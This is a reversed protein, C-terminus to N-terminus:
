LNEIQYEGRSRDFGHLRSIGSVRRLGDRQEIYVMLNVTEAISTRVAEHPVGMNAMLLLNELRPLARPASNAHITAGSGPHGTNAADLWDHAEPGRLEGIVIRDPAYRMATRVAKRANVGGDEDCEVLVHNPSEVQLEHVSEIVFLREEQPILALVTNMLTTKGSGTGGVILFNERKRVAATLLEAYRESLTGRAVYEELTFVRSAHRRICMSPGNVAVPAMIAEVRFGPLRASLIRRNSKEGVEAAVLTALLTIAANIAAASLQVDIKHKRGGKAVFVDHPANVMIENVAEDEFFPRLPALTDKLQSLIQQKYGRSAPPTRLITSLNSM